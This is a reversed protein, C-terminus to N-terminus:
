FSGKQDSHSHHYTKKKKPPANTVVVHESVSCRGLDFNDKSFVDCHKWLLLDVIKDHKESLLHDLKFKIACSKQEVRCCVDSDKMFVSEKDISISENGQSLSMWGEKLDIVARGNLFDNGLLVEFPRELVGPTREFNHCQPARCYM